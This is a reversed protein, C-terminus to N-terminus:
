MHPDLLTRLAHRARHLRVKVANPTMDLVKAAEETSLEEMDRLLLVVRYRDPLREISSRVVKRVETRQLIAEASEIWVADQERAEPHEPHRRRRRLEMLCRNVLIRHLWTSLQANGEFEGISKFLSVFADQVADRADEESRLFRKATRLLSSTQRRVLAEFADEDRARLGAILQTTQM